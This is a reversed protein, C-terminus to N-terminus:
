NWLKFKGDNYIIYSNNEIWDGCNLYHIKDNHKDEPKHIHGCIVGKCNRKFEDYVKYVFPWDIDTDKKRTAKYDTFLSKRWSKEKSDSVLYVKTFPYLKKYNTITNELSQHLAGYLLNNKHLTFVLRSLIYNGDIILNLLM